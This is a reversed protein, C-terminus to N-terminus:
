AEGAKVFEIIAAALDKPRQIPVDHISDEMVVVRVENLAGKAAEIGQLKATAWLGRQPDDSHQIAPVMLVPCRIRPYLESPKQEWIERAIEMHDPIPLRRYVKGDRVELNSLVMEQLQDSWIASVEPWKKAFGVFTEVPVGDIEPPRMMVQAQEWAMEFTSRAMFGGDILAIGAPVDPYGAAFELAVCGGWSHGVIVPRELGLMEIFGALDATVEAFSYNGPKDSLGHGRQDIAFVRLREALLPAM